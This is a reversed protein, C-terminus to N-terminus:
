PSNSNRRARLSASAGCSALLRSSYWLPAGAAGALPQDIARSFIPRATYESPCLTYSAADYVDPSPPAPIFFRAGQAESEQRGRAM